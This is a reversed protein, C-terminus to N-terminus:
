KVEIGSSNYVRCKFNQKTPIACALKNSVFDTHYLYSENVTYIFSVWCFALIIGFVGSIIVTTSQMCKYHFKVALDFGVLIFLMIILPFNLTSTMVMPLFLYM